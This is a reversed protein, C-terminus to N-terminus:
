KTLHSQYYYDQLICPTLVDKYNEVLTMHWLIDEIFKKTAPHMICHDRRVNIWWDWEAQPSWNKKGMYAQGAAIFDCIMEVAYQYPMEIGRPHNPGEGNDFNDLWYEWHHKNLSKHHLWAFSVGNIDKCNLVPSRDGSYYKVSEWFETPSYKSLDHALGRWPIGARCCNCFVYWRHKNITHLHGFFKSILTREKQM